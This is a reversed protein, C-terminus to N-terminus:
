GAWTQVYFRSRIFLCNAVSNMLKELELCGMVDLDEGQTILSDQIALGAKGELDLINRVVHLWIVFFNVYSKYIPMLFTM